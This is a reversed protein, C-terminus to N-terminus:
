DTKQALSTIWQHINYKEDILEYMQKTNNSECKIKLPGSVVPCMSFEIEATGFITFISEKVTKELLAHECVINILEDAANNNIINQGFMWWDHDVKSVFDEETMNLREAQRTTMDSELEDLLNMLSKMNKLPGRLGGSMQHQMLVSGQHCYRHPCAQMIGFAMSAAFDGICNITKGSNALADITQIIKYGDIVSGGPSQLYINIENSKVNLLDKICNSTTLSDIAGRLVVHNDETLTIMRKQQPQLVVNTSNDQVQDQTQAFSSTFFLAVFLISAFLKM